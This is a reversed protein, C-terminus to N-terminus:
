PFRGTRGAARCACRRPRAPRPRPLLSVSAQERVAGRDVDFGSTAAVPRDREPPLLEDRAAARGAAVATAAAVDDQVGVGVQAVQRRQPVVRVDARRGALGALARVLAAAVPRRELHGHGDARLHEGLVAREHAVERMGARADHDGAAPPASGAVRAERRGGPLRRAQGADALVALRARELQMELQHGVGRQEPERVDALRAEQAADRVRRRLDGVIGNVVISGTSPVTSDTSPRWSVTTSTGPRSSPADSPIPSPWSNRACRSRARSSSCTTETSSSRSAARSPKWIM